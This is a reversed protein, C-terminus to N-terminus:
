RFFFTWPACNMRRRKSAIPPGGRITEASITELAIAVENSELPNYVEAGEQSTGRRDEM